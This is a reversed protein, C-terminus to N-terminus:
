KRAPFGKLYFIRSQCWNQIKMWVLLYKLYWDPPYKVKFGYEDNKYELWSAMDIAPLKIIEIFKFTSLIQDLILKHSEKDADSEWLGLAITFNPKCVTKLLIYYKPEIEYKTFEEVVDKCAEKKVAIWYGPNPPIGTELNKEKPVNAFFVSPNEFQIYWDPPYKMEFGYKENRYTKWGSISQASDTEKMSQLEMELVTTYDMYLEQTKLKILYYAGGGLTFLVIIIILIRFLGFNNKDKFFSVIELFSFILLFGITAGFFIARFIQQFYEHPYAVLLTFWAPFAILKFYISSRIIISFPNYSHPSAVAIFLLSLLGWLGGVITAIIYTVKKFDSIKEVLKVNLNIPM